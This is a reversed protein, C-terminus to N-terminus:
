SARVAWGLLPHTKRKLLNWTVEDIELKVLM